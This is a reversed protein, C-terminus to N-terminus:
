LNVDVLSAVHGIHLAGRHSITITYYAKNFVLTVCWFTYLGTPDHSSNIPPTNLQFYNIPSLNNSKNPRRCKQGVGMGLVRSCRM